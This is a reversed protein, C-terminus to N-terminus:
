NTTTINNSTERDVPRTITEEYTPPAPESVPNALDVHDYPSAPSPPTTIENIDSATESTYTATPPQYLPQQSDFVQPPIPPTPYHVPCLDYPNQLDNDVPALRCM